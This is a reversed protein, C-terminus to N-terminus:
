APYKLSWKELGIAKRPSAATAVSPKAAIHAKIGSVRGAGFVAMAYETSHNLRIPATLFLGPRLRFAASEIGKRKSRLQLFKIRAPVKQV